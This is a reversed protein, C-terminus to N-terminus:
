MMRGEWAVVLVRDFIIVRERRGRDAVEIAVGDRAREFRVVGERRCRARWVGM